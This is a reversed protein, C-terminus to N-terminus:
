MSCVVGPSEPSSRECWPPRAGQHQITAIATLEEGEGPSVFACTVSALTWEAPLAARATTAGLGVLLGGQVHGVRNGVHAGNKM